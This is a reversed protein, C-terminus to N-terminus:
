EEVDETYSGNCDDDMELDDLYSLDEKRANIGINQRLFSTMPIDVRNDSCISMSSSGSDM